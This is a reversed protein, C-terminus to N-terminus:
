KLWGTFFIKVIFSGLFVFVHSKNSISLGIQFLKLNNCIGNVSLGLIIKCISMFNQHFFYNSDVTWHLFNKDSRQSFSFVKVPNYTCINTISNLSFQSYSYLFNFTFSVLVRVIKIYIYLVPILSFQSFFSPFFLRM